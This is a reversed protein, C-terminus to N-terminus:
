EGVPPPYVEAVYHDVDAEPLRTAVAWYFIALSFLADLALGLWLGITGSGGHKLVHTLGGFIGGPGFPGLYSLLLSGLLWAIIWPASRFDLKPADPNLKLAGSIGLLVYGLIMAVALTSNTEWGAFWIVWGAAVFGLPAVVAAAPLRYLRALDPKQKRLAALSVPAGAYMLVSASTIVNVLVYWSPFPLLFLIGVVFSVLVGIWPIKTAPSVKELVKPAFGNRSLAFSLRATATNYALGTGSPSIVGDISLVTALWGLGILKTLTYFPAGAIAAAEPLKSGKLGGWNGVQALFGTPMAVIFALQILVYLVAAILISVITASVLVKPSSAEGGIQLAQEFGLLSFIIGGPLTEFVAKVGGHFFGGASLNGGHFYGIVLILVALVPVFVKWLAIASTVKALWRIGVMNVLVFAALLIIGAVIGVGSLSKGGTSADVKIWSHAFHAWSAASLYQIAAIVEVPAVAAAQLYSAWGFTAGAFSGFAYHPYRSTGGSVPFLGGLEAHILALVLIIVSGLIWGLLAAPGALTVATFAGLLWGSGILSTTSTWLLGFFGVGRDLGDSELNIEPTPAATTASM